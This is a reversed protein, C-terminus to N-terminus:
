IILDKEHLDADGPLTEGAKVSAYGVYGTEILKKRPKSGADDNSGQLMALVESSRRNVEDSNNLIQFENNREIEVGARLYKMYTDAVKDPYKEKTWKYVREKSKLQDVFHRLAVRKYEPLDPDELKLLAATAQYVEIAEDAINILGKQDLMSKKTGEGISRQNIVHKAGHMPLMMSLKKTKLQLWMMDDYGLSGKEFKFLRGSALGPMQMPGAKLLPKGGVGVMHQKMAENVGEVIMPVWMDRMMLELPYGKMLSQGGLTRAALRTVDWSEETALAKIAACEAIINMKPYTDILKTTLDVSADMVESRVVMESIYKKIQPLDALKGGQEDFRPRQMAELTSTEVACKAAEACFSGFGARGTNLSNFIVGTGGGVGGLINSVGTESEVPIELDHFEMYAQNSGRIGSLQLPRSLYLGEKELEKRKAETQDFTDDLRFPLEKIFVTPKLSPGGDDVKAFILMINSRHTNTIYVKSGNLVYKSGDESLKAVTGANNVADTGSGRETLAFSVLGEGKAVLDLFYRQQEFDGYMKFPNSGLTSHASVLGALTGSYSKIIARIAKDYERQNFGLGGYKKPVKLKFLGLDRMRELVEKRVYAEEDIQYPNVLAKELKSFELDLKGMWDGVEASPSQLRDLSQNEVVQWRAAQYKLENELHPPTDGIRAGYGSLWSQIVTPSPRLGDEVLSTYGQINKLRDPELENEMARQMMHIPNYGRSICHEFFGPDGKGLMGGAQKLLKAAAKDASVEETKEGGLHPPLYLAGPVTPTLSREVRDVALFSM